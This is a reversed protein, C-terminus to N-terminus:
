GSGAKALPRVSTGGADLVERVKNLLTEPTFPKELFAIGQGLRGDHVVSDRTYGSMFLVRLQPFRDLLTEATQRGNVGGPLVVDTLLLDPHNGTEELVKEAEQASGAALVQYGYRSLVRVVLERVHAEDEVVLIRECGRRPEDRRKASEVLSAASAGAVPLYVKLTSGKGPESYVSIYGDSQKVIGFATSLGLGTGKGVEKTTFFPEFIHRQTEKKMGCGTDSVALMAYRGPKAGPHAGCYAHDLRANATEILLRGGEPMADRANVALNLLVQGIQHPDIESEKLGPALSFHLEVDEGLSRRLLPELDLIVRNLCLIEPKLM